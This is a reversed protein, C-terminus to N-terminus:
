TPKRFSPASHQRGSQDRWITKIWSSEQSRKSSFLRKESEKQNSQGSSEGSLDFPSTDLEWQWEERASGRANNPTIATSPSGKRRQFLTKLIGTGCVANSTGGFQSERRDERLSYLFRREDDDRDDMEDQEGLVYEWMPDWPLDQDDNGKNNPFM